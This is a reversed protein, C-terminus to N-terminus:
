NKVSENAEGREKFGIEKEKKWEISEFNVKQGCESCYKPQYNPGANLINKCRPCYHYETEIIVFGHKLYTEVRSSPKAGIWRPIRM